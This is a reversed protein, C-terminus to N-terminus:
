TLSGPSRGFNCKSNCKPCKALAKIWLLHVVFLVNTVNTSPSLLIDSHYIFTFISCNELMRSSYWLNRLQWTVQKLLQSRSLYGPDAPDGVEVRGVVVVFCKRRWDAWLSWGGQPWWYPVVWLCACLRWSQPAINYLVINYFVVSVCVCM